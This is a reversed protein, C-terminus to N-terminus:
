RTWVGAETIAIVGRRGVLLRRLNNPFTFDFVGGLPNYTIRFITTSNVALYGRDLYADQALSGQGREQGDITYSLSDFTAPYPSGSSDILTNWTQGQDFSNRVHTSAMYGINNIGYSKVELISSNPLSLTSEWTAGYDRSIAYNGTSAEIIMLEPLDGVVFDVQFPTPYRDWVDNNRTWVFNSNQSAVGRSLHTFSGGVGNNVTESQWSKGLNKSLFIEDNDGCVYITRSNEIDGYRIGSNVLTNVWSRNTDQPQDVFIISSTQGSPVIDEGDLFHGTDLLRGEDLRQVVHDSTGFSLNEKIKFINEASEYALKFNAREELDAKYEVQFDSHISKSRKLLRNIDSFITENIGVFSPIQVVFGGWQAWPGFRARMLEPDTKWDYIQVGDVLTEMFSIRSGVPKLYPKWYNDVSFDRGNINVKLNLVEGLDNKVEDISAIVGSELSYPIGSMVGIANEFNDPNASSRLGYHMGRLANLYQLSDERKPMGLQRGYRSYMDLEVGKADIFWVRDQPIKIKTRFRGKREFVIDNTFWPSVTVDIDMPTYSIVDYSSGNWKATSFTNDANILRAYEPIYGAFEEDEQITINTSSQSIVELKQNLPWPETRIQSAKILPEETEYIYSFEVGIDTSYDNQTLGWLNGTSFLFEPTIKVNNQQNVLSISNVRRGANVSYPIIQVVSDNEYFVSGKLTANTSDYELVFELEGSFGNRWATATSTLTNLVVANTSFETTLAQNLTLNTASVGVIEYSGNNSSTGTIEINQGVEFGDSPWTGHNRTIVNGSFQLDQNQTQAFQGFGVYINAGDDYLRIEYSPGTDGFSNISLARLIDTNSWNDINIKYVQRWDSAGDMYQSDQFVAINVWDLDFSNRSGSHAFRDFDATSPNDEPETSTTSLLSILYGGSKLEESFGSTYSFNNNGIRFSGSESELQNDSFILYRGNESGILFGEISSEVDVLRVDAPFTGYPAFPEVRFVSKANQYYTTYALAEAAQDSMGQWFGEISRRRDDLITCTFFDGILEWFIRTPVRKM